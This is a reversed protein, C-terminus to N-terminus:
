TTQTQEVTEFARYKKLRPFCRVAAGCGCSITESFREIFSGDPQAENVKPIQVVKTGDAKTYARQGYRQGCGAMSDEINKGQQEDYIYRKKEADCFADWEVTARFRGLAHKAIAKAWAINDAGKPLVEGLSRLLFGMESVLAKEKGYRYEANAVRYKLSEGVFDQNEPTAELLKLEHGDGFVTVLRKNKKFQGDSGTIKNGEVDKADVIREEYDMEGPLQFAYEGPYPTPRFGASEEPMTEMDVEPADDVTFKAAIEDLRAM